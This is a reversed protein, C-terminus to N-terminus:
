KCKTYFNNFIDGEIKLQVACYNDNFHLKPETTAFLRMMTHLGSSSPREGKGRRAIYYFYKDNMIFAM